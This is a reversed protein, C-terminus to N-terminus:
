LAGAAKAAKCEASEGDMCLFGCLEARDPNSKDKCAELAIKASEGCLDKKEGIRCARECASYRAKTNGASADTCLKADGGGCSALAAIAVVSVLSVYKMVKLKM